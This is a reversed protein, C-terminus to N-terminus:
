MDDAYLTMILDKDKNINIGRAGKATFYEVIDSIFLSFLLPSLIEGQLVGRTVLVEDSVSSEGSIVFSAM